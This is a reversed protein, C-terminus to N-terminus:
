KTRFFFRCKLYRYVLKPIIDIIHERCCGAGSSQITLADTTDLCDYFIDGWMASASSIKEKIKMETQLLVDYVAQSPHTLFSVNRGSGYDKIQTLAACHKSVNSKQRLSHVCLTCAIFKSSHNVVYGAVHHVLFRDILVAPTTNVLEPVASEWGQGHM